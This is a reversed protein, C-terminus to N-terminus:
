GDRRLDLVVGVIKGGLKAKAKGIADVLEDHTKEQFARIRLWAIGAPLAAWDVSPVHIEARVLPVRYLKGGESPRRITLEVKTGPDGRIAHSAKDLPKAEKGDIALIQDGPKIGAKEAPSGEIPATVTLWEGGPDFEIGVGGFKGETEGTFDEFEKPPFYESHPDLEAVM